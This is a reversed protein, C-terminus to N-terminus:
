DERTVYDLRLQAVLGHINSKIKREIDSESLSAIINRIVKDLAEIAKHNFIGLENAEKFDAETNVGKGEYWKRFKEFLEDKPPYYKDMYENARAGRTYGGAVDEIIEKAEELQSM